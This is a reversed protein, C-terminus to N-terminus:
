LIQYIWITGTNDRGKEGISFRILGANEKVEGEDYVVFLNRWRQKTDVGDVDLVRMQTGDLRVEVSYNGQHIDTRRIVLMKRGRIINRLQFQMTGGIWRKVTDHVLVGDPYFFAENHTSPHSCDVLEFQHNELSEKSGPNLTDVLTYRDEGFLLVHPMTYSIYKIDDSSVEKAILTQRLGEMVARHAKLILDIEEYSNNYSKLRDGLDYMATRSIEYSNKATYLRGEDEHEREYEAIEFLVQHDHDFLPHILHIVDDFSIGACQVIMKATMASSQLNRLSIVPLVEYGSAAVTRTYELLEVLFRLLYTSIGKKIRSAWPVFRYDLTNVGPDTFDDNNKIEHLGGGEDEALQIRALEIELEPERIEPVIDLKVTELRKQYGQLDSNEKNQYYEVYQEEYKITVFVTAPLKFKKPDLVLVQPEYLFLPRGTGDIAVGRAILLTILGGKTKEAQVQLSDLYGSVIGFGHFLKNYLLEKEFHYDEIANWYGPGAQLGPFFNARRFPELHEAM